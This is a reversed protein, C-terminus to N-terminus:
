WSSCQSWSMVVVIVGMSMVVISGAGASARLAILFALRRRQVPQHGPQRRGKRHARKGIGAADFPRHFSAVDDIGPGQAVPKRGHQGISGPNQSPTKRACECRAADDRSSAANRSIASSAAAKTGERSRWSSVVVWPRAKMSMARAAQAHSPSSSIIEALLRGDDIGDRDPEDAGRM